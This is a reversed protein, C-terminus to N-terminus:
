LMVCLTEYPKNEIIQFQNYKILKYAIHDCNSHPWFFNIFNSIFLFSYLPFCAIIWAPNELYYQFTHLPNPIKSPPVKVMWHKKWVASLGWCISILIIYGYMFGSIFFFSVFICCCHSCSYIFSTNPSKMFIAIQHPSKKPTLFPSNKGVPHSEEGM